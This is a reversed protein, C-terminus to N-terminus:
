KLITVNGYVNSADKWQFTYYQTNKMIETNEM